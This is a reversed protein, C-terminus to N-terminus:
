NEEVKDPQKVIKVLKSWSKDTKVMERVNKDTEELKM